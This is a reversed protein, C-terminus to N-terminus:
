INGCIARLSIFTEAPCAICLYEATGACIVEINFVEETFPERVTSCFLAEAIVAANRCDNGVTQTRCANGGCPRITSCYNRPFHIKGVAVLFHKTFIEGHHFFPYFIDAVCASDFIKPCVTPLIAIPESHVAFAVLTACACSLDVKNCGCIICVGNLAYYIGSFNETFVNGCIFLKM